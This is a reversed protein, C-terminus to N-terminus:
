YDLGKLRNREAAAAQARAALFSTGLGAALGLGRAAGPSALGMRQVAYHTGMGAGLGAAGASLAKGIGYGEEPGKALYQARAIDQPTAGTDELQRGVDHQGVMHGAAGVMAGGALLPTIGWPVKFDTGPIHVTNGTVRSLWNQGQAVASAVKPLPVRAAARNM